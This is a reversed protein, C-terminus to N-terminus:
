GKGDLANAGDGDAEEAHLHWGLGGDQGAGALQKGHKSNEAGIWGGLSKGLSM